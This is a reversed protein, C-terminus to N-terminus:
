RPWAGLYVDIYKFYGPYKRNTGPLKDNDHYQAGMLWLRCDRPVFWMGLGYEMHRVNPSHGPLDRVVQDNPDWLIDDHQTPMQFEVSRFKRVVDGTSGDGNIRRLEAWIQIETPQPPTIDLVQPSPDWSWKLPPSWFDVGWISVKGKIDFGASGTPAKEGNVITYGGSDKHHHFPDQEEGTLLLATGGGVFRSVAPIDQGTEGPEQGYTLEIPQPSGVAM